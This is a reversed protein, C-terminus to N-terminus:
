IVGNSDIGVITFTYTNAPTVGDPTTTSTATTSSCSPLLLFGASVVFLALIGAAKRTRKGGLAAGVVVFGLLPISLWLAYFSRPRVAAGTTVPGFTSITLTASEPNAGLMLSNGNGPYSFSCVPPITVLPTISNCYLTIGGSPGVYGNIPNVSVMGEGGSGAPVSSPAVANSRHDHIAADSGIGDATLSAGLLYDNPRNRYHNRQLGRYYNTSHQHYDGDRDGSADRTHPQGLVRSDVDHAADRGGPM